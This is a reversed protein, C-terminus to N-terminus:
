KEGKVVGEEINQIDKQLAEVVSDELRLLQKVHDKVSWLHGQIEDLIKYQRVTVNSDDSLLGDLLRSITALNVSVPKEKTEELERYNM